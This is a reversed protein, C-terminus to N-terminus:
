EDDKGNGHEWAVMSFWVFLIPAVVLALVGLRYDVWLFLPIAGWASICALVILTFPLIGLPTHDESM